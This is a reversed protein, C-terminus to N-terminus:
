TTYDCVVGALGTIITKVAAEVNERKGQVSCGEGEAERACLM